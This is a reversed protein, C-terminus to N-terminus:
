RKSQAKEIKLETEFCWQPTNQIFHSTKKQLRKYRFEWPINKIFISAIDNKSFPVEPIELGNPIRGLLEETKHRANKAGIPKIISYMVSFNFYARGGINTAFPVNRPIKFPMPSDYIYDWM